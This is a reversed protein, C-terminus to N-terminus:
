SKKTNRNNKNNSKVPIKKVLNLDSKIKKIYLLNKNEESKKKEKKQKELNNYFNIQLDIQNKSENIERIIRQREPISLFKNSRGLNIKNNLFSNQENNKNNNGNPLIKIITSAGKLKINQQPNINDKNKVKIM